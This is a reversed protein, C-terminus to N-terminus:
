RMIVCLGVSHDYVIELTKKGEEEVAKLVYRKLKDGANAVKVKGNSGAVIEALNAGNTWAAPFSLSGARAVIPWVGDRRMKPAWGALDLDLVCNAGGLTASGSIDFGPVGQEGAVLTVKSLNDGLLTMGSLKTAGSLVVQPEAQFDLKGEATLVTNTFMIPAKIAGVLDLGKQANRVMVTAGDFVQWTAKNNHGPFFENVTVTSDRFLFTADQSGPLWAIDGTNAFTLAAGNVFALDCRDHAAGSDDTGYVVHANATLTLAAGDFVLSTDSAVNYVMPMRLSGNKVRVDAGGHLIMKGLTVAAGGLDATAEGAPFNVIDSSTSPYRDSVGWNNPDGWSTGDGWGRWYFLSSTASPFAQTWEGEITQSVGKDNTATVAYWYTEGFSLGVVSLKASAGTLTVSDSAVPVTRGSDSYFTVSAATVADAGEGASLVGLSVEVANKGSFSVAANCDPAPNVVLAKMFVDLETVGEDLATSYSHINESRTFYISDEALWSPTLSVASAKIVPVTVGTPYATVLDDPEEVRLYSKSSPSYAGAVVLATTTGKILMSSGDSISFSQCSVQSEVLEVRKGSSVMFQGPKGGGSTCAITSNTLILNSGAGSFNLQNVRVDSCDVFVFTCPGGGNAGPYVENGIFSSSEFHVTTGCGYPLFTNGNAFSSGNLFELRAGTGGLISYHTGLQNITVATADFTLTAQALVGEASGMGTAGFKFSGNAITVHARKGVTLKGCTVSSGGLDINVVANAPFTVASGSSPAVDSFGWNAPDGWTKGDGWGTWAFATEGAGSPLSYIIERSVSASLGAENEATLVLTYTGVPLDKFDFVVSGPTEVSYVRKTQTALKESLSADAYVEATVDAYLGGCSALSATVRKFGAVFENSGFALSPNAKDPVSGVTLQAPESASVKIPEGDTGNSASLYWWLTEGAVGQRVFAYTTQAADVVCSDVPEYAAGDSSVSLTLRNEGAGLHSLSGAFLLDTGDVQAVASGLRCPANTGPTWANVEIEAYPTWDNDQKGFCVKLATVGDALSDGADDALVASLRGASSNNNGIGYSLATFGPISTWEDNSVTKVQIDDIGIGDRGGDTHFSYFGISGIDEPQLFTCEFTNDNYVSQSGNVLGNVLAGCAGGNLKCTASPLINAPSASWGGATYPAKIWVLEAQTGLAVAGAVAVAVMLKKM